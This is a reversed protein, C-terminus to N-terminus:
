RLTFSKERLDSTKESRVTKRFTLILIHLRMNLFHTIIVVNTYKMKYTKFDHKIM